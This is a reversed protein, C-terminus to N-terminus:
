IPKLGLWYGDMIKRAYAESNESKVDSPVRVILSFEVLKGMTFVFRSIGITTQTFETSALEFDSTPFCHTGVRNKVLMEIAGGYPGNIRDFRPSIGAKKSLQGELTKVAGFAKENTDFTPPLETIVVAGIPPALDQETFLIYNDIVGRSRDGLFIKVYTKQVDPLQPVRFKAGLNPLEVVKEKQINEQKPHRHMANGGGGNCPQASLNWVAGIIKALPPENSDALVCSSGAFLFAVISLHLSLSTSM